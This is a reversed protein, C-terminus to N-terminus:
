RFSPLNIAYSPPGLHDKIAARLEEIRHYGVGSWILTEHESYLILTAEETSVQLTRELVTREGDFILSPIGLSYAKEWGRVRELASEHESPFFLDVCIGLAVLGYSRWEEAIEAIEDPPAAESSWIVVLVAGQPDASRYATRLMAEVEAIGGVPQPTSVPEKEGGSCGLVLPLLLMLALSRLRIRRM